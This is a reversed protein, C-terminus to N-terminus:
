ETLARGCKAINFLTDVCGIEVYIASFLIVGFVDVKYEYLILGYSVFSCGDIIWICDSLIVETAGKDYLVLQHRGWILDCDLQLILM